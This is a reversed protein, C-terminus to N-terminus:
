DSFREHSQAIRHAISGDFIEDGIRVVVGGLLETDIEVHLKVHRGVATALAAALRDRREDSLPVAVRVVAIQRERRGAARAALADIAIDIPRGRPALLVSDVLRLTTPAVKESLLTRALERKHDVPLAANAFAARLAPAGDIIRAFRFLEDEVSDLTGDHDAAVFAADAGLAEIGDVLDISSSWREGVIHHLLELVPADVARTFVADLLEGRAEAPVGPDALSRALAREGGLLRAV